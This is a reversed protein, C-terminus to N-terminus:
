KMRLLLAHYKDGLTQEEESLALGEGCRRNMRVYCLFKYREVDTGGREASSQVQVKLVELEAYAELDADYGRSGAVTQSNGQREWFSRCIAHM